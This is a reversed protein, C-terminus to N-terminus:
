PNNIVAIQMAAMQTMIRTMQEILAVITTSEQSEAESM